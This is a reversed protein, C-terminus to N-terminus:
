SDIQGRETYRYLAGPEVIIYLNRRVVGADLFHWSFGDCFNLRRCPAPFFGVASSFDTATRFRSDSCVHGHMHLHPQMQLASRRPMPSDAKAFGHSGLSRPNRMLSLEFFELVIELPLMSKLFYTLSSARQDRITENALYSRNTGDVKRRGESPLHSMRERASDTIRGSLNFIRSVSFLCENESSGLM